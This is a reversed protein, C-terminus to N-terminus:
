QDPFGLTFSVMTEEANSMGPFDVTPDNKQTVKISTEFVLQEPYSHVTDETPKHLVTLNQGTSEGPELTGIAYEMTMGFGETSVWVDHEENYTYVAEGDWGEDARKSPYLVFNETTRAQFMSLREEGFVYTSDGTNELVVEVRIPHDDTLSAQTVQVTYQLPNPLDMNQSIVQADPNPTTKDGPNPKGWPVEACGAVTLLLGTGSATLFERRDM